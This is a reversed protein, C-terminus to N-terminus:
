AFYKSFGLGKNLMELFRNHFEIIKDVFAYDNGAKAIKAPNQLSNLEIRKIEIIERGHYIIHDKFM